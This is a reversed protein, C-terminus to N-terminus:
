VGPSSGAPKGAMLEEFCDLIVKFGDLLMAKDEIPLKKLTRYPKNIIIGYILRFLCGSPHEALCSEWKKINVERSQGEFSNQWARYNSGMREYLAEDIRSCHAPLDPGYYAWILITIRMLDEFQETFKNTRHMYRLNDALVPQSEAIEGGMLKHLLEIPIEEVKQFLLRLVALQELQKKTFSPHVAQM